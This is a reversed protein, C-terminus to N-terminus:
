VATEEPTPSVKPAERYSKTPDKAPPILKPYLEYLIWAVGAIGLGLMGYRLASVAFTADLAPLQFDYQALANGRDLMWHWATHAVLASLVITGMREAVVRRFLLELLPITLLLVLIQGLEVGVNFALLSSIQHRGAFQLSERLVFSFGFGHVLGFGFAMMWRRELKPGVINEFAMYVISVAILVEILPPFWLGSPALGTASAILTISHAVTFATVVALLPRLRRFPIVLCFVFLLHDIGDLIHLFGLRVFTLAAQYWHPDLRVLGPDGTYQLVRETGGPPMFRLITNTRIGLQALYPEISFDSAESQIPYDILVDLLAQNWVLDVDDPIRASRLNALGQEYTVFSQDNPLAVRAAVVQGGDLQRDNEYIKLYELIWTKAANLIQPDAESFIVYDAGRVPLSMDRMASLPVRMLLHLNQGEPKFYAQVTVDNPIEHSSASSSGLLLMVGLLSLVLTRRPLGGHVWPMLSM